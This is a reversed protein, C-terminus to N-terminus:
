FILSSAIVRRPTQREATGCRCDPATHSSLTQYSRLLARPADSHPQGGCVPEPATPSLPLWRGTNAGPAFLSLNVQMIRVPKIKYYSNQEENRM